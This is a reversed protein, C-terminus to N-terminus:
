LAAYLAVTCLFHSASTSKRWYGSLHKYGPVAEYLHGKRWATAVHQRVRVHHCLAPHLEVVITGPGFGRSGQGLQTCMWVENGVLLRRAHLVLPHSPWVALALRAASPQVPFPSAANVASPDRKHVEAEASEQHLEKFLCACSLTVSTTGGSYARLQAAAHLPAACARLFRGMLEQKTFVEPAM